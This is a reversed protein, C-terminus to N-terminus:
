VVLSRSNRNTEMGTHIDAVKNHCHNCIISPSVITDLDSTM